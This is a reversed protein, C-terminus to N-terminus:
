DQDLGISRKRIVLDPIQDVRDSRTDNRFRNKTMVLTSENDGKRAVSIALGEPAVVRLALELKILSAPHDSDLRHRM